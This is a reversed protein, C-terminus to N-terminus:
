IIFHIFIRMVECPVVIISPVNNRHGNYLYFFGHLRKNFSALKEGLVWTLDFPRISPEREVTIEMGVTFASKTM